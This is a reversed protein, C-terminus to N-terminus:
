KCPTSNQNSLQLDSHPPMAHSCSYSLFPIITSFSQVIQSYSSSSSAHKKRVGISTLGTLCSALEKATRETFSWAQWVLPCVVNAQRWDRSAATGAVTWRISQSHATQHKRVSLLPQQGRFPASMTLATSVWRILFFRNREAIARILRCALARLQCALRCPVRSRESARYQQTIMVLINGTDVFATGRSASWVPLVHSCQCAAHLLSAPGISRRSLIHAPLSCRHTIM